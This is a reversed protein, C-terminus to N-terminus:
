KLIYASEWVDRRVFVTNIVDKYVIEYGTALIQQGLLADSNSTTKLHPHTDVLEIIIMKPSFFDLSFGSFVKSELGEVDIVLLDFGVLIQNENLFTDLKKTKLVIERSTVLPRAWATSMYESKLEQNATSLTGSVNFKLEHDDLDSIASEFISVSKHNSHNDRCKQALEPIAEVMYGTWGREALGWTNSCNIGDNAGIEVFVGSDKEGLFKAFLHSLYVIQCSPQRPYYEMDDVIGNPRNMSKFLKELIRSYSHKM